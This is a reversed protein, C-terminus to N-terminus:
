REGSFVEIAEAVSPRRFPTSILCRVIFRRIKRNLAAKWQPKKDGRMVEDPLQGALVYLLTAGLLYIDAKPGLHDPDTKVEPPLFAAVSVSGSRSLFGRNSMDGWIDISGSIDVLRSDPCREDLSVVMNHPFIGMFAPVRQGAHAAAFEGLLIACRRAIDMVREVELQGGAKSLLAPKPIDLDQVLYSGSPRSFARLRRPLLGSDSNALAKAVAVARASRTVPDSRLQYVLLPRAPEVSVDFGLCLDPQVPFLDGGHMAGSFGEYVKVGDGLYL